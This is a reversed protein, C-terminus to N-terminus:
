EEINLRWFSCKHDQYDAFKITYLEVIRRHVRYVSLYIKFKNKAIINRNGFWGKIDKNM